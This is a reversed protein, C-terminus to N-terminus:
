AIFCILIIIYKDNKFLNDVNIYAITHVPPAVKVNHSKEVYTM